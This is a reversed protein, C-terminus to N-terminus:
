EAKKALNLADKKLKNLQRKGLNLEKTAIKEFAEEIGLRCSWLLARHFPLDELDLDAVAFDLLLYCFYNSISKDAEAILTCIEAISEVNDTSAPKFAPSFMRAHALITESQFWSPQLLQALFQDTLKIWKNQSILDLNNISIKGEIARSLWTDM